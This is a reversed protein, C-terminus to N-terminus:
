VVSKRDSTLGVVSFKGDPNAEWEQRSAEELQALTMANAKEVALATGTKNSGGCSALATATVALVSVTLLIKKKM